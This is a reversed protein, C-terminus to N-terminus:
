SLLLEQTGTTDEASALSMHAATAKDTVDVCLGLGPMRRASQLRKGAVQSHLMVHKTSMTLLLPSAKKSLAQQDPILVRSVVHDLDM